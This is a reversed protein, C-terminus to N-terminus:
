RPAMAREEAAAAQRFYSEYDGGGDGSVAPSRAKASRSGELQEARRQDTPQPQPEPDPAPNSQSAQVYGRFRSVLDIVEDPDGLVERNNEYLRQVHPRQAKLWPDFDKHQILSLWDSANENLYSVNSEVFSNLEDQGMQSFREQTVKGQEAVAEVAKFLPALEDGFEEKAKAWEPAGIIGSLDNQSAASTLLQVKRMAETADRQYRSVRGNDSKLRHDLSDRDEKLAQYAAQAAEPNSWDIEPPNTTSADPPTDAGTADEYQDAARSDPGEVIQPSEGANESTAEAFAAEYDQQANDDM